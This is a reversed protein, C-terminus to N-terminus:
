TQWAFYSLQTAWAGARHQRCLTGQSSEPYPNPNTSGACRERHLSLTLTLTLAAQVANGKFTRALRAMSSGNGLQFDDDWAFIYDYMGLPYVRMIYEYM